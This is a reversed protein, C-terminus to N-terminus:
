ATRSLASSFFLGWAVGITIGLFTAWGATRLVLTPATEPWTTAILVAVISALVGLVVLSAGGVLTVVIRYGLSPRASQGAGRRQFQLFLSIVGVIFDGITAWAVIMSLWGQNM